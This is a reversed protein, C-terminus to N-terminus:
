DWARRPAYLGTKLSRASPGPLVLERQDRVVSYLSRNTLRELRAAALRPELRLVSRDRTHLHLRGISM